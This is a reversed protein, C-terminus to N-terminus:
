NPKKALFDSLFDNFEKREDETVNDMVDSEDKNPDDLMRYAREITAYYLMSLKASPESVTQFELSSIHFKQSPCLSPSIWPTLTLFFAETSEGYNYNITLPHILQYARSEKNAQVHAIIDEGSKLRIFKLM